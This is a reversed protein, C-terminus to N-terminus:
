AASRGFHAGSRILASWRSSAACSNLDWRWRAVLDVDRYTLAKFRKPGGVLMKTMPTTM